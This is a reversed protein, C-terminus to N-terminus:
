ENKNEKMKVYVRVVLTNYDEDVMHADTQNNCYWGLERRIIINNDKMLRLCQGDDLIPNFSVGQCELFSQLWPKEILMYNYAKNLLEQEETKM